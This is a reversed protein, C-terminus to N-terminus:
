FLAAKANFIAGQFGNQPTYATLKGLYAHLNAHYKFTRELYAWWLKGYQWTIYCLAAYDWETLWLPKVIFRTSMRDM